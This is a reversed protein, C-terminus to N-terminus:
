LGMREGTTFGADFAADLHPALLLGNFVGLLDANTKYDVWLKIHSTHAGM